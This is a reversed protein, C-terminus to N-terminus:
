CSWRVARDAAVGGRGGPLERWPPSGRPSFMDAVLCRRNRRRVDVVTQAIPATTRTAPHVLLLVSSSLLLPPPVLLAALELSSLPSVTVMPKEAGAASWPQIDPMVAAARACASLYSSM